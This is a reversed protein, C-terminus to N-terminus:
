PGEAACGLGVKRVEARAEDVLMWFIGASSFTWISGTGATAKKGRDAVWEHVQQSVREM